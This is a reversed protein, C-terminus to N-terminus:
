EDIQTEVAQDLNLRMTTALGRQEDASLPKDESLREYVRWLNAIPANYIYFGNTPETPDDSM